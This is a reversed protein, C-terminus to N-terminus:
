WKFQYAVRPFRGPMIATVQGLSTGVTDTQTRIANNNFLNFIDLQFTHVKGNGYRFNKRINVDVQTWREGYLSGPENIIITQAQTRQGSPFLTAPPQWTIVREQGAYSQLVLGL